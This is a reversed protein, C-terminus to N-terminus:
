VMMPVLVSANYDRVLQAALRWPRDAQVGPEDGEKMQGSRLEGVMMGFEEAVTTHVTYYPDAEPRVALVGAGASAAAVAVAARHPSIGAAGGPPVSILVPAM